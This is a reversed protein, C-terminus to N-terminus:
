FNAFYWSGVSYTTDSVRSIPPLLGNNTLSWNVWLGFYAVTLTHGAWFTRVACPAAGGVGVQSGVCGAVNRTTSRSRPESRTGGNTTRTHEAIRNARQRSDSCQRSRSRCSAAEAASRAAVPVGTGEVGSGAGAFAYSPVVM